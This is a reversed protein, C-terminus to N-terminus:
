DHNTNFIAYRTNYEPIVSGKKGTFDPKDGSGRCFLLSACGLTFELALHAQISSLIQTQKAKGGQNKPWFQSQKAKGGKFNAWFQSQNAKFQTQKRMEGITWKSM